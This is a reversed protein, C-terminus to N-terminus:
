LAHRLTLEHGRGVRRERIVIMDGGAATRREGTRGIGDVARYKM